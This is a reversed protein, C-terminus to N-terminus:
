KKEATLADELEGEEDLEDCIDIGGILEGNVYLQPYTPWNSYKKVGERIEEDLYIDFHGYSPIVSGVYKKLLAVMRKSFGCQPNDPNGKMFLMVKHQVILKKIRKELSEKIYGAPIKDVLSGAEALENVAKATGLLTSNIYVTTVEGGPYAFEKNEQLAQLFDARVSLDVLAHQVGNEQLIEKLKEADPKDSASLFVVVKNITLFETLAAQPSLRKCTAPMMEDFEKEEILEMVVDIGGVFSGDIYM